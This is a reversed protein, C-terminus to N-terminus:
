FEHVLLITPDLCNRDSRHLNPLNIRIWITVILRIVIPESEFYNNAEEEFDEDLEPFDDAALADDGM